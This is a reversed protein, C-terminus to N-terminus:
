IAIIKKQEPDILYGHGVEPLHPEEQRCYRSWFRLMKTLVPLHSVLIKNRPEEPPLLEVCNGQISIREDIDIGIQLNKSIVQATEQTRTTPSTWIGEWPISTAQLRHALDETARIGDSTLSGSLFQYGAHRILAFM